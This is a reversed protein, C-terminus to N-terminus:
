VPVADLPSDKVTEIKLLPMVVTFYQPTVIVDIQKGSVLAYRNNINQLGTGTGEQVQNKRQLNNRVILKTGSEVYIEIKLPKETSIINHKIANELVIQLALPVIQTDCQGEELINAATNVNLNDGFREKLLFIYANLFELENSLATTRSDKMELIYRYVKSLQRVFRIATDPNEPIIQILTNLSNFLFHPNVQNRLGELQSALNEKELREKEVLTNKWLQAYRMSEYMGAIAIFSVFSAANIQISSPIQKEAIGLYPEICFHIFNCFTFIFTFCLTLIWRIRKTNDEVKHYKENGKIFFYRCIVWYITTYLTSVLVKQWFDITNEIPKNFFIPPILFGVLPTGILRFWFDKFEYKIENKSNSFM